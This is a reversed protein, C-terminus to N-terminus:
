ARLWAAMEEEPNPLYLNWDKVWYSDKPTVSSYFYYPGAGISRRLSELSTNAVNWEDQMTSLVWGLRACTSRNTKEALKVARSGDLYTFGSFSRLVNEPGGANALRNLCDVTTQERTTVLYSGGSSLLISQSDIARDKLQFSYYEQGNYEFFSIRHRTYFQTRNVVNHLVGHLQLASLYCFLTDDVTHTAIEFPSPNIGSFREADSVYLGHRIRKVKGSAAARALLNADTTSGQTAAKFDKTNFVHNTNLYKKIAM